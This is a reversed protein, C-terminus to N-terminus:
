IRAGRMAGYTRFEYVASCKYKAGNYKSLYYELPNVLGPRDARKIALVKPSLLINATKGGCRRYWGLRSGSVKRIDEDTFGCKFM